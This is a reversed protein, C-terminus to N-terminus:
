YLIELFFISIVLTFIGKTINNLITLIIISYVIITISLLTFIFLKLM